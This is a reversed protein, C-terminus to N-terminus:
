GSRLTVVGRPTDFNAALAAAPADARVVGPVAIAAFADAAVGHLAFGRLRVGRDPLRECPHPGRWQIWTPLAGGALPRGDGRVSIRWRLTGAPTDREAAVVSGPDAGLAALTACRADIDDCRAVWTVLRPGHRQLSAQLAPADLGFWRPHPPASADPDIAILELYCGPFADGGIALLRNHTGMLPHRGGAEPAVGFTSECWAAGQALSHAAVVLHDLAPPRAAASM